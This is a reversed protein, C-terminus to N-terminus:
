NEALSTIALLGDCREMLYEAPKGFIEALKVIEQETFNVKGRMKHSFSSQGLGLLNDLDSYSLKKDVIISLLNKYPTNSRKVM